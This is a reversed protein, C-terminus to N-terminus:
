RREKRAAELMTICDSRAAELAAPDEWIIAQVSTFNPRGVMSYRNAYVDRQILECLASVVELRDELSWALSPQWDPRIWNPGDMM